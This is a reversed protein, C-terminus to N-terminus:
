TAPLTTTVFSKLAEPTIKGEFRVVQGGDKVILVTPYGNVAYQQIRADSGDTSDVTEATLLYKGTPQAKMGDTFSNWVPAATKCHPCWNAFFGMLTAESPRGNDNSIDAGFNEYFAMRPKVLTTYAFYTAVSFVAVLFVYLILRKRPKILDNYLDTAIGPM